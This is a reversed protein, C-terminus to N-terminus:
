ESEKKPCYIRYCRALRLPYQDRLIDKVFKKKPSDAAKEVELSAGLEAVFRCKVWHIYFCPPVRLSAEALSTAWHAKASLGRVVTSSTKGIVAYRGKVLRM